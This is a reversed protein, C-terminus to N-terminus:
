KRGRIDAGTVQLPTFSQIEPPLKVGLCRVEPNDSVCLTTQKRNDAM